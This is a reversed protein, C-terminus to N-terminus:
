KKPEEENKPQEEKNNEKSQENNEKEGEEKSQNEQEENKDKPEYKKFEYKGAILDKVAQTPQAGKSVWYKYKKEDYKFLVPNYSPNYFGIAEIHKGDRPKSSEAVVIRYSPANKRGKKLLRIKLM